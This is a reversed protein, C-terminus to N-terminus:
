RARLGAGGLRYVHPEEVRALVFGSLKGLTRRAWAYGDGEDDFAKAVAGDKFVVWRSLLSADALLGPLAARFREMEEAARRDAEAVAPDHTSVM